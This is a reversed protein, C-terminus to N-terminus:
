RCLHDRRHRTWFLTLRKVSLGSLMSIRNYNKKKFTSTDIFVLRTQLKMILAKQDAKIWCSVKISFLNPLIFEPCVGFLSFLYSKSKKSPSIDVM